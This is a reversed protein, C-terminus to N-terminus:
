ILKIGPKERITFKILLCGNKIEYEFKDLLNIKDLKIQIEFGGFQRKNFQSAKKTNIIKEYCNKKKGTIKIVSYSGETDLKIGTEEYEKDEESNPYKGPLEVYVFVNKNTIYYSYQANFSNGQVRGLEDILCKKLIIQKSQEKLIIKTIIKNIGNSNEKERNIDIINSNHILEDKKIPNELITRSIESFYNKICEIPDFKEKDTILNLLKYIYKIAKENYYDGAETGKKAYILHYIKPESKPEFLPKWKSEEIELNIDHSEELSFTLSKKLINKLYDDVQKKTEFEKLNHIVILPKKRSLNEIHANVKLLLKQENITLKGLILFLIDSYKIIFNQLFLELQIIDRSKNEFLDHVNEKKDVIKIEDSGNKIVKNLNQEEQEEENSNIDDTKLIPTELGASDLLIIKRNKFEDLEPYKISLGETKISAGTPLEIKSFDSLITSKGRNESGIVGIKTYKSNKYEIYNKKGKETMSIEWGNKLGLISNCKIILDYFDEKKINEYKSSKDANEKLKKLEEKLLEYDKPINNLKKIEEKLNIIQKDLGNKENQLKQFVINLNEYNNKSQENERKLNNNIEKLNNIENKYKLIQDEQKIYNNSLIDYYGKLKDLESKLTEIENNKDFLSESLNEYSLEYKSIKNKYNKEEDKLNQIESNLFNIIEEKESLIDQYSNITAKNIEVKEQIENKLEAIENNLKSIEQNNDQEM